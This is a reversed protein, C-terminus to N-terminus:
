RTLVLKEIRSSETRGGQHTHIIKYFYVGPALGATSFNEKRNAENYAPAATRKDRLVERGDISYVVVEDKYGINTLFYINDGAKAPNPYLKDKLTEYM